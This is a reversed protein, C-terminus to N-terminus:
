DIVSYRRGPQRSIASASLSRRSGAVRCEKAFHFQGVGNIEVIQPAHGLAMQRADGEIIDLAADVVLLPEIVIPPGEVTM